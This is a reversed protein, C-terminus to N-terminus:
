PIGLLQVFWAPSADGEPTLLIGHGSSALIQKQDDSPGILDSLEIESNLNTTRLALPTQKRLFGKYCLQTIGRREKKVYPAQLATFKIRTNLRGLTM